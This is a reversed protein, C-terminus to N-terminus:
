KKETILNEKDVVGKVVKMMTKCKPYGSCGLFEGYFSKRLKMVGEKCIPCTSNEEEYKKENSNQTDNICYKQMRNETKGALVWIKGAEDMQEKEDECGKLFKIQPANFITKCDPYKDCAILKKKLKPSFKIILNGNKCVPCSSIKNAIFTALKFSEALKKGIAIENKKIDGLIKELEVRALDLIKQSTSEKNRIKEMEEEFERTLKEDILKPTEDKLVKDMALGLETVKISKDSIFNRKKLSELIEARTAKTGLNRKELEKIISADTYRKPPQTEKQIDEIKENKVIANVEVKPLELDEVKVYPAYLEHWNKEITRSAKLEFNNKEIDVIIKNTERLADEGFIAFFRKVILDYIKLDWGELKKPPEGTPHISPHAPDDKKGENPVLKKNVAYIKLVLHKYNPFNELKKLISKVDIGKLKQSSTRPYSAWGNVYLSQAIELTRKPSISFLNSAEIQLSTLDFPTPVKQKFKKNEVNKVFGCKNKTESLVRMVEKEDFIKYKDNLLKEDQVKDVFEVEQAKEDKLKELSQFVNEYYKENFSVFNEKNKKFELRFNELPIEVVEELEEEQIQLNKRELNLKLFYCYNWEVGKNSFELFTPEVKEILNKNLIVGIEEKVERVIADEVKEGSSVGGGATKSLKNADCKKNKQVGKLYFVIIKILYGYILM